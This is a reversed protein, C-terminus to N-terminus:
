VSVGERAPTITCNSPAESGRCATPGQWRGAHLALRRAWTTAAAGQGDMDVDGDRPQLNGAIADALGDRIEADPNERLQAKAMVKQLRLRRDAKDEGYMIIPEGLSILKEKVEQDDTPVAIRTALSQVELARLKEAHEHQAQLTKDDLELTERERVMGINIHGAEVARQVGAQKIGGYVIRQSNGAM